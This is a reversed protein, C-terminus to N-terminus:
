DPYAAAYCRAYCRAVYQKVRSKSVGLRAAIEAHSLGDVRAFLFARRARDPLTELTKVIATLEEIAAVVQEPSPAAAGAMIASHTDLFTREVRARRADDIVLCRAISALFARPERLSETRPREILKCFADHALDDARWACGMRRRLWERLWAGHSAYLMDIDDNCAGASM